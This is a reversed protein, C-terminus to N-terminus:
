RMLTDQIQQLIETVYDGQEAKTGHGCGAMGLHIRQNIRQDDLTKDVAKKMIGDGMM